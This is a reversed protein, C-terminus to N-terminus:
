IRPLRINWIITTALEPVDFHNPFFRHLITTYVELISYKIPGLTVGIGLLLVLIFSLTTIFVIKRGIFRKYEKEVNNTTETSEVEVAPM